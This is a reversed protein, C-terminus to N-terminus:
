RSVEKLTDFNAPGPIVLGAKERDEMLKKQYLNRPVLVWVIVLVGVIMAAVEAYVIKYPRPAAGRTAAKGTFDPKDFRIFREM